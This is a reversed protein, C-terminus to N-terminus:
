KKEKAKVETNSCILQDSFTISSSIRKKPQGVDYYYLVSCTPRTAQLMIKKHM